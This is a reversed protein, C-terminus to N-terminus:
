WRNQLCRSRDYAIHFGPPCEIATHRYSGYPGRFWNCGGYPGRWRGPGCGEGVKIISGQGPVVPVPVIAAGASSITGLALAACVAITRIM